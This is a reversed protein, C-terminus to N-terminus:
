GKDKATKKATSEPESPASLDAVHKAAAEAPNFLAKAKPAAAAEPAPPAHLLLDGARYQELLFPSWEVERGEEALVRGGGFKDIPRPGDQIKRGPFPWVKVKDGFEPLGIM